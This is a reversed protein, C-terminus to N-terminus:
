VSKDAKQQAKILGNETMGLIGAIERWTAGEARAKAVYEARVTPLNRMRAAIHELEKRTDPTM